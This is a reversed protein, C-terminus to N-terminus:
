TSKVIEKINALTKKDVSKLVKNSVEKTVNESVNVSVNVSVKDNEISIRQCKLSEVNERVTKHVAISHVNESSTTVSIDNRDVSKKLCESSDTVGKLVEEDIVEKNVGKLLDKDIDRFVGREREFNELRANLGEIVKYLSKILMMLDQVSTPLLVKGANTDINVSTNTNSSISINSSTNPHSMIPIPQQQVSAM